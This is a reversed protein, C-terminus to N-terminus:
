NPLLRFRTISQKYNLSWFWKLLRKNAGRLTQNPSTMNSSFTVGYTGVHDRLVKGVPVNEVIPVGLEQLHEKPGIGSLMLLQPSSIAGASLIVEKSAAARYTRGHNTFIVGTAEKTDNNIEIKIVYSKTLVVLNNRKRVPM